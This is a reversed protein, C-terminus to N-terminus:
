VSVCFCCEVVVLIKFIFSFLVVVVVVERSLSFVIRVVEVVVNVIRLYIM